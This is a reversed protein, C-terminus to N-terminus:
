REHPRKEKEKIRRIMDMDESIDNIAEDMADDLNLIPLKVKEIGTM